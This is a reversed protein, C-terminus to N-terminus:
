SYTKANKDSSFAFMWYLLIVVVLIAIYTISWYPRNNWWYEWVSLGILILCIIVIIGLWLGTGIEHNHKDLMVAEICLSFAGATMSAM